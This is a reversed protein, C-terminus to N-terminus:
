SHGGTIGERLTDLYADVALGGLAAVQTIWGEISNCRGCLTAVYKGTVHNHHVTRADPGRSPGFPRGCWECTTQDEVQESQERTLKYMRM